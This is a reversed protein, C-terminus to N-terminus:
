KKVEYSTMVRMFVPPPVVIVQKEISAVAKSGILETGDTKKYVRKKDILWATVDTQNTGDTLTVSMEVGYLLDQM